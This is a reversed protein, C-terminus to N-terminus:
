KVQDLLKRTQQSCNIDSKITCYSKNDIGKLSSLKSNMNSYISDGKTTNCCRHFEEIQEKIADICNNIETISSLDAKTIANQYKQYTGEVTAESVM